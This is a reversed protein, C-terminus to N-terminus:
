NVGKLLGKSPFSGSLWKKAKIRRKHWAQIGGYGAGERGGNKRESDKNYATIKEDSCNNKSKWKKWIKTKKVILSWFAKIHESSIQVSTWRKSPWAHLQGHPYLRDWAGCQAEDRPQAHLPPSPHLPQVNPTCLHAFYPLPFPVDHSMMPCWSM